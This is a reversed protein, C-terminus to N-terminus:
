FGLRIIKMEGTKINKLLVSDVTIKSVRYGKLTDGEQYVDNNILASPKGASENIGKLVCSEGALEVPQAPQPNIMTRRNASPYLFSEMEPINVILEKRSEGEAIRENLVVITAIQFFSVIILGLFIIFKPKFRTEIFIFRYIKGHM